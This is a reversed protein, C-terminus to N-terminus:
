EHAFFFRVYVDYEHGKCPNQCDLYMCVDIDRQVFSTSVFLYIKKFAHNLSKCKLYMYGVRSFYEDASIKAM